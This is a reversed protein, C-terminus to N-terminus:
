VSRQIQTIAVFVGSKRHIKAAHECAQALTAFRKGNCFYKM